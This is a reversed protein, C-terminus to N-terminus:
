NTTKILNWKIQTQINPKLLKYIYIPDHTTTQKSNDCNMADM